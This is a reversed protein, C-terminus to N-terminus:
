GIDFDLNVGIGIHTPQDGIIVFPFPAIGSVELKIRKNVKNWAPGFLEKLIERYRMLRTGAIGPADNPNAIIIAVQFTYKELVAPGRNDSATATEGYFVFTDWAVDRDQLTQFVYDGPEALTISPYDSNMETILAPLNARMYADLEGVFKEISYKKLFISM